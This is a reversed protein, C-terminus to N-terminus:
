GRGRPAVLAEWADRLGARPKGAATQRNEVRVHLNGVMFVETPNESLLPTTGQEWGAQELHEDSLALALMPRDTCVQFPAYSLTPSVEFGARLYRVLLDDVQDQLRDPDDDSVEFVCSWIVPPEAISTKRWPPPSLAVTASMPVGSEVALSLWHYGPHGPYVMSPLGDLTLYVSKRTNQTPSHKTSMISKAREATAGPFVHLYKNVPTETM